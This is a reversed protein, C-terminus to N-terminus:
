ILYKCTPESKEMWGTSPFLNCVFAGMFWCYTIESTQNVYYKSINSTQNCGCLSGILNCMFEFDFGYM